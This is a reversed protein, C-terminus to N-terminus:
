KLPIRIKRFKFHIENIKLTHHNLVQYFFFFQECHSRMCKVPLEASACPHERSTRMERRLTSSSHQSTASLILFWGCHRSLSHGTTSVALFYIPMVDHVIFKTKDHETVFSFYKQFAREAKTELRARAKRAVALASVRIERRHRRNIQQM